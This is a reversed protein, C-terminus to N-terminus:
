EVMPFMLKQNEVDYLNEKNIVLYDVITREEKTDYNLRNFMSNVSMYGMIYENPAVLCGLVGKDVYYVIKETNGVGYVIGIRGSDKTINLIEETVVTNLGVLYDVPSENIKNTITEETLERDDELVWSVNRDGIAAILGNKREMNSNKKKNGVIIGIKKGNKKNKLLNSGLDYGMQYNDPAIYSYGKSIPIESEIMVIQTDLLMDDLEKVLKNNNSLDLILGDTGNKLERRIIDLCETVGNQTSVTNITIETNYEKAANEIGQKLISWRESNNSELIVSVHYTDNRDGSSMYGYTGISFLLLILLLISLIYKMKNTM